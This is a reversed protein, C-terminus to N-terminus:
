CTRRYQRQNVPKSSSDMGDVVYLKEIILENNKLYVHGDESAKYTCLDPMLRFGRGKLAPRESGAHATIENGYVSRGNKPATAFHYVAVVQDEKVSDFWNFGDFDISGDENICPIRNRDSNFKWEYYGDRGNKPATGRAVVTMRGGASNFDSSGYESVASLLASQDIGYVIGNTKLIEEIESNGRLPRGAHWNFYATLGDPSVCLDYQGNIVMNWGSMKKKDGNNCLLIIRRKRMEKATYMFDAYGSVDVNEQLGLRIERMQWYSYVPDSYKSVDINEELGLRIERMKRWTFATDAYVSVDLGRLLGEAIETICSGRYATNLYPDIDVGMMHAKMIANLQEADYGQRLYKVLKIGSEQAQRLIKLVVPDYGACEVLGMESM